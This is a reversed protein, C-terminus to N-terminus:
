GLPDEVHFRRTHIDITILLWHEHPINIPIIWREAVFAAPPITWTVQSDTWLQFMLSDPVWMQQGTKM